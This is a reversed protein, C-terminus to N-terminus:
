SELKATEEVAHDRIEHLEVNSQLCLQRLKSSAGLSGDDRAQELEWMEVPVVGVRTVEIGAGLNALLVSEPVSWGAAMGHGLLSLVMDGAGAVDTVERARTPFSEGRGDRDVLYIGERDLTLAVHELELERLDLM